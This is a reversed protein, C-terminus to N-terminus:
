REAISAAVVSQDALASGTERVQRAFRAQESGYPAGGNLKSVQARFGRIAGQKEADTGHREARAIANEAAQIRQQRDGFEAPESWRDAEPDFSELAKWMALYAASWDALGENLVM